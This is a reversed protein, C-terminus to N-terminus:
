LLLTVGEGLHHLLVPPPHLVVGLAAQLETLHSIDRHILVNPISLQRQFILGKNTSKVQKQADLFPLMNGPWLHTAGGTLYQSLFRFKKKTTGYM